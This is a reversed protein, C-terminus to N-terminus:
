NDTTLEAITSRPTNISFHRIKLHHAIDQALSAFVRQASPHWAGSLLLCETQGNKKLLLQLEYTHDIYDGGSDPKSPGLVECIAIVDSIPVQRSNGLLHVVQLERDFRIWPLRGRLLLQRLLPVYLPCLSVVAGVLAARLYNIPAPNTLWSALNLLAWVLAIICAWWVARPWHIPPLTVVVEAPRDDVVISYWRFRSYTNSLARFEGAPPLRESKHHAAM